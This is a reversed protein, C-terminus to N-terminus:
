TDKEGKKKKRLKKFPVYMITTKGDKDPKVRLFISAGVKADIGINEPAIDQNRKKLNSLPIQISFDSNNKLDYTGEIFMTLVTSEIEMRSVNMATGRMAIQTSIDSFQVDTFDRGKFLFNSLKQMPEFNKLSGDRISFKATGILNPTQVEFKDNIDSQLDLDANLKGDVHEHRFTSQNFDNFCYFFQKLSVDKIKADIKIPNNSRQLQDVKMNLLVRGGAFKMGVNKMIFQNHALTLKGKLQSAKFKSNVFEKINFDLDFDLQSDLRDLMNSMRKKSKAKGSKSTKSNRSNLMGTIDMKPSAIALRVKGTTQPNVFFPIFDTAVGTVDVDNKNIQFSLKIIDLQKETFGFVAELKNVRIQKRNYQFQGNTIRAQGNLKGEYATKSEDLYERLKGSYTFDSVFTGGLLKVSTSDLNTNLDKLEVKFLAKLDLYPDRMNSLTVVAEIPLNNIKANLKSFHLRSNSDDSPLQPNLHNMFKGEGSSQDLELKGATVKSNSFSFSVDVNPKVGPELRGNINVSVRVPKEISFRGLKKSISDALISLAENYDMQDSEINLQFKGTNNLEFEGKLRIKSKDFIMTSPRLTLHQRTSDLELDLDTLTSKDKLFKGKTANLLLGQFTMNGIIHISSGANTAALINETNAFHVGFSKHKLSDQFAVHIDKLNIQKLDIVVLKEGAGTGAARHTKFVEVNTYGEITRFVFLEGHEVDVSKISLEKVFLKFAEVNVDVREAKLFARQYLEYRPGNLYVDKLTISLHPFKHLFTINYDGIKVDGNVTEQLRLNIESLIEKKYFNTLILGIALIGVVVIALYILWKFIGKM